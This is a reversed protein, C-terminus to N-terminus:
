RRRRNRTLKRDLTATLRTVLNRLAAHMTDDDVYELIRVLRVAAEGEIPRKEGFFSSADLWRNVHTQATQPLAQLMDELDIEAKVLARYGLEGTPFDMVEVYVLPTNGPWLKKAVASAEMFEAVVPDSARVVAEEFARQERTGLVNWPVDEIIGAERLENYLELHDIMVDHESSRIM